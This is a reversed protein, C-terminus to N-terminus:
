EFARVAAARMHEVDSAAYFNLTTSADAHGLMDQVSKVDAGSQILMSGFTHRIDHPSMDPLGVRKMFRKMHKTLYTPNRPETAAEGHFVFANGALSPETARLERLAEAARYTLPVTRIGTDTKPLGVVIGSQATYTVNREVHLLANALDVDQWQLGFLEGRRLGTTLLLTYMTKQVLPLNEIERIYDSVEGRTLADVKHRTLKPAEVKAVPNETIYEAKVAYAFILNLTAYHHRISKPAPPQNKATKYTNKLYDLYGEIEYRDIRSLQKKGLYPLIIKLLYGHFAITSARHERENMQSPMWVQETFDAFTIVEPSKTHQAHEHEDQMQREWIAAEKEASQMLKAESMSKQPKWTTTKFQQRGDADRGLFARFKFSIIKGDKRNPHISAM